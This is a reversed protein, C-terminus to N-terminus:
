REHDRWSRLPGHPRKRRRKKERKEKKVSIETCKQVNKNGEALNTERPPQFRRSAVVRIM